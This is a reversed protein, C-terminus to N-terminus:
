IKARFMFALAAISILFLACSLYIISTIDALTAMAGVALPGIVGGIEYVMYDIGYVQGYLDGKVHRKIYVDMPIVLFSIGLPTVIFTLTLGLLSHQFLFFSQGLITFIAGITFMKKLGIKNTIIGAAIDFPVYPISDLMLIFAGLLLGAGMYNTWIPEFTWIAYEWFGFAFSFILIALLPKGLKVLRKFEGAYLGDKLLVKKSKKFDSLRFHFEGPFAFLSFAAIAMLLLIVLSIFMPVEFYLLLAGAILPGFGWGFNHLMDSLGSVIPINKKTSHDLLSAYAPIDYVITFIGFLIMFLALYFFSGMFLFFVSALFGVVGLIFTFKRGIKDTLDGAPLSVALRGASYSSIIVGVLFLNNLKSQFYNPLFYWLIGEVLTLLGGILILEKPFGFKHRRWHRPM